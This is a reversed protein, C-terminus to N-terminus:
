WIAPFNGKIAFAAYEPCIKEGGHYPQKKIKLMSVKDYFTFFLMIMLLISFTKEISKAVETNIGSTSLLSYPFIFMAIQIFTGYIYNSSNNYESVLILYIGIMLCFSFQKAIRYEKRFILSISSIILLLILSAFGINYLIPIYPFAYLLSLVILSIFITPKLNLITNSYKTISM